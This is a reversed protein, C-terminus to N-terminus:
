HPWIAVTTPSLELGKIELAGMSAGNAGVSISGFRMSLTTRPLDIAIAQTGAVVDPQAINMDRAIQSFWDVYSQTFQVGSASTSEFTANELLIADIRIPGAFDIPNLYDMGGARFALPASPDLVPVRRQLPGSGFAVDGLTLMDGDDFWQISALHARINLIISIGEQGAQAELSEDFIPTIDAWAQNACLLMAAAMWQRNM